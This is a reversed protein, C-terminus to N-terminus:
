LRRHPLAQMLIKFVGIGARHMWLLDKRIGDKTINGNMWHWWVRPRAVNGPNVFGSYLNDKPAPQKTQALTVVPILLSAAIIITTSRFRKKMFQTIHSTASNSSVKILLAPESPTFVVSLIM